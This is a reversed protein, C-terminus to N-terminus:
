AIYVTKIYSYVDLAELGPERTGNGSKGLGGFPMHPESGYTGMNVSVVGAKVRKVFSRINGIDRTHICATLGYESENVLEIAEGLSTVRHLTAVPGFLETRTIQPTANEILTPALYYGKRHADDKMRHGGILLKAGFDVDHSVINLIKDLQTESIVPQVMRPTAKVLADKFRDYIGNFVIIRSASACRQGALSFASKVAWDVASDFDADDCVVFANKGGMELSCKINRSACEKGICTGVGASGTFSVVDVEHHFVISEGAEVCGQLVNITGKPFALRHALSTFIDATLPVYESPKLVVTNGCILAPFIKWAINALPMNWATILAAVGYPQRITMAWRDAASTTTRGYLRQGEGAFFQGLLIASQLEAYADDYSKGTELCITDCIDKGETRLLRCLDFLMQGRKVPSVKSWLPFAARAADVAKCGETVGCKGVEAIVEGTAPNYKKFATTAEVEQGCIYSNVM